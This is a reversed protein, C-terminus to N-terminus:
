RDNLFLIVRYIQNNEYFKGTEVVSLPPEDEMEDISELKEMFKSRRPVPKPEVPLIEEEEDSSNPFLEDISEMGFFKLANSLEADEREYEECEVLPTGLLMNKVSGEGEYARLIPSEKASAPTYFEFKKLKGNLPTSISLRPTVKKSLNLKSGVKTATENWISSSDFEYFIDSISKEETKPGLEPEPEQESESSCKENSEFENEGLENQQKELSERRTSRMKTLKENFKTLFNKHVVVPQRQSFNKRILNEDFQQVIKLLNERGDFIEGLKEMKDATKLSKKLFVGDKELLLKKIINPCRENLIEESTLYDLELKKAM